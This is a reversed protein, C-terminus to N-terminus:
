RAKRLFEAAKQPDTTRAAPPLMGLIKKGYPKSSLRPDLIAVVGRDEAHRILRGFGQTLVLVMQPVSLKDFGAWRNGTERILAEERAKHVLDTPVAFPLKDMIVLRLADGQIDIGEFFTRLAFLVANGDEKMVRVLESTTTDGQRMVHLGQQRFDGALAEYSENMASRSTFLLLAGGRSETVLYKTAAQAYSRWAPMTKFTPEPQNRDPTFLLAQVPYDFPTGADYLRAEEKGLGVTREIFSFDTGTALTASIMITQLKGWLADRLFPGVSVPASNLLLRERKDGRATTRSEILAWRVTKDEPDTTFAEVRALLRGSRNLLRARAVKERETEVRQSLVEERASRVAQYLAIFYEGLPGTLTGLPLPMPDHKGGAKVKMFDLYRVTLQNWLASAAPEILEALLVDLGQRDMYGALDRSLKVISGEGLTDELAGTAADPLTHAEDIVVRDVEGLLAVNGASQLRLKLDQLLYATNTIVVDAEAAKRKAREALCVDGFPCRSAGPCEDASMSFPRWEEDPLAPFDERTIVKLDRVADSASLEEVTAIVRAQGPTPAKMDEIQVHCPYNGRGMLVAWTFPVGLHEELFPLDKLAYQRQLAKTATAVVSRGGSMILPILAALSKGTGTGAQILGHSHGEGLLSEGAIIQEIVEAMKMQHERRTYGPLSAALAEQAEAFSLPAKVEVGTAETM